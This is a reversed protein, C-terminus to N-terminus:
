RRTFWTVLGKIYGIGRHFDDAQTVTYGTLAAFATLLNVNYTLKVESVLIVTWDLGTIRSVNRMDCHTGWTTDTM